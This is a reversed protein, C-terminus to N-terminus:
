KVARLLRVVQGGPLEIFPLYELGSVVSIHGKVGTCLLAADQKELIENSTVKKEEVAAIEVQM